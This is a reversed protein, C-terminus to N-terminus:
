LDVLFNSSVYRLLIQAESLLRVGHRTEEDKGSM